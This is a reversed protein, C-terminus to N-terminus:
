GILSDFVQSNREHDVYSGGGVREAQTPTVQQTNASYMFVIQHNRSTPVKGGAPVVREQSSSQKLM